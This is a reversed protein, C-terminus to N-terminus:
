YLHAARYLFQWGQQMASVITIYFILTLRFLQCAARFTSNDSSSSSSSSSALGM